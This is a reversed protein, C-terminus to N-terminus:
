LKTDTSKDDLRLKYTAVILFIKRKHILAAELCLSLKCPTILLFCNEKMDYLYINKDPTRMNLVLLFVTQIASAERRLQQPYFHPRM